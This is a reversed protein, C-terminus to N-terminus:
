NSNDGITMEIGKSVSECDYYVTSICEIDTIRMKDGEFNKCIFNLLRIIKASERQKTEANQFVSYALINAILDIKKVTNKKM